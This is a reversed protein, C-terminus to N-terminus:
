GKQPKCLGIIMLLNAKKPRGSGSAKSGSDKLGSEATSKELKLQPDPTELKQM